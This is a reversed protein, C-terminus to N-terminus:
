LASRDYENEILRFYDRTNKDADYILIEQGLTNIVNGVAFDKVSYFSTGKQTKLQSRKYFTGGTMGNSSGGEVMAVTDDEIYYTITLNRVIESEVVPVGLPNDTEWPRAESFQGYFRLVQKENLVHAPVVPTGLKQAAVPSPLGFKDKTKAPALNAKDSTNLGVLDLLSTTVARSVNASM